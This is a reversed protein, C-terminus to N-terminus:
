IFLLYFRNIFHQNEANSQSMILPSLDANQHDNLKGKGVYFKVIQDTCDQLATQLFTINQEFHM